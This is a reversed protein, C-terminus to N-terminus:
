DAWGEGPQVLGVAGEPLWGRRGDPLAVLVHGADRELSRVEAGEHLVFLEVGDRGVASRGAIEAALIVAAPRAQLAQATVATSIALLLGLVAALWAAPRLSGLERERDGRRRRLWTAAGMAFGLLAAGLLATERLALSRQWFFLRPVHSAPELQDRVRGRAHELNARTDPERPLLVLAQRWALIAPGLRGQRYLANGLDYLLHGDVAGTRLVERWATEAEAYDGARYATAGEHFRAQPSVGDSAGLCLLASVALIPFLSWRSM